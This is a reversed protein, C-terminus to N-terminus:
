GAVLEAIRAAGSENLRSLLEARVREDKWVHEFFAECGLPANWGAMYSWAHEKPDPPPPEPRSRLWADVVQPRAPYAAAISACVLRELTQTRPVGPADPRPDSWDVLCVRGGTSLHVDGGQEPQAGPDAARLAGLVSAANPPLGREPSAALDLDRNVVLLELSKSGAEKIFTLASPLVRPRGQCPVVRVFRQSHSLFAFQGGRVVTGWPDLVRHADAPQEQAERADRCRLSLLWGKWFARDLYGECLVVRQVQDTM